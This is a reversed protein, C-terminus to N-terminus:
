ELQREDSLTKLQITLIKKILAGESKKKRRKISIEEFNQSFLHINWFVKRAADEGEVRPTAQKFITKV